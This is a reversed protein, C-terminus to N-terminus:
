ASRRNLWSRGGRTAVAQEGEDGEDSEAAITLLLIAVSYRYSCDILFRDRHQANIDILAKHAILVKARFSTSRLM